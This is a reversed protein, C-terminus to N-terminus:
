RRWHLVPAPREKPARERSPWGLYVLGIVIDGPDMGCFDTIAGNAGDAPTSWLCVLGAAEAMLLMNQIGAAVAYTNEVSELPSDGPASAVALVVPARLYKTRAKEVRNEADGRAAMAGAVVEGFAGRADGGIATVRLPRTVRHNPAAQAARVLREVLADDVARERDIGMSSTRRHIVSEVMDLENADTVANM